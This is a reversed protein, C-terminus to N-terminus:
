QKVLQNHILAYRYQQLIAKLFNEMEPVAASKISILNKKLYIDERSYLHTSEQGDFLLIYQDTILQWSNNSYNVSWGKESVFLNRGFSSYKGSYNLLHLVSPLIDCQQATELHVKNKEEGPIIFLL